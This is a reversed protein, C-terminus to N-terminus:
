ELSASANSAIAFEGSSGGEYTLGMGANLIINDALELACAKMSPMGWTSVSKVVEKTIPSFITAIGPLYEGSSAGVLGSGM